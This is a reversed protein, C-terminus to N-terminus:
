WRRVKQLQCHSDWEDGAAQAGMSQLRRGTRRPRPTRQQRADADGAHSVAQGRLRSCRLVAYLARRHLSCGFGRTGADPQHQATATGAACSVNAHDAHELFHVDRDVCDSAGAHARDHAPEIGCAQAAVFDLAYEVIEVPLFHDPVARWTALTGIAALLVVAVDEGLTREAHVRTGADHQREAEHLAM